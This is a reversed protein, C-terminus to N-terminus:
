EFRCEGTGLRACRGARYPGFRPACCYYGADTDCSPIVLYRNCYPVPPSNPDFPDPCGGSYCYGNCCAFGYRAYPDEPFFGSPCDSPQTCPRIPYSVDPWQAVDPRVVDPWVIVLDDVPETVDAEVSPQEEVSADFARVDGEDRTPQVRSACAVLSVSALALTLTRATKM